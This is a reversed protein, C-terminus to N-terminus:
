RRHAPTSIRWLIRAAGVAVLALSALNGALRVAQSEARPVLLLSLLGAALICIAPLLLWRLSAAKRQPVWGWGEAKADAIGEPNEQRWVETKELAEQAPKRSEIEERAAIIAEDNYARRGVDLISTLEETSLKAMREKLATLDVKM